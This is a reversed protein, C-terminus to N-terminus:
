ILMYDVKKAVRRSAENEKDINLKAFRSKKEYFAVSTLRKLMYTGVKKGEYGKRM